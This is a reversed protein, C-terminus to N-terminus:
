SGLTHWPVFNFFPHCKIDSVGGGGSGLRYGADYQLLETLLSSAAASLHDPILLQTHPQVGTPHCQWLPMGTLLEFLLAGLSWWDCAETIKSVGGIEPACYMQELAKRSIESQVETWQGFYTLCVKGNSSLLINRPNLDQCVIGQEHLSELALLIQAGWIRVEGEPLGWRAQHVTGSFSRTGLQPRHFCNDADRLQELSQREERFHGHFSGGTNAAPPDSLLGRSPERCLLSLFERSEEGGEVLERQVEKVDKGTSNLQPAMNVFDLPLSLPSLCKPELPSVLAPQSNGSSLSVVFQSSESDVVTQSNCITHVCTIDAQSQSQLPLHLTNPVIRVKQTLVNVTSCLIPQTAEGFLSRLTIQPVGNIGLIDSNSETATLSKQDQTPKAANWARDIDLNSDVREIRVDNGLLDTTVNLPDRTDVIVCPHVPLPSNDQSALCNHQGNTPARSFTNMKVACSNSSKEQQLEVQELRSNHLCGTEECYSHTGCSELQHQIENWFAPSDPDLSESHDRGLLTDMGCEDEGNLHSLQSLMPSTYTTKLQYRHQKPSFCEPHEKAVKSRVRYLKSFLRCGQVHELHLFVSDESIYYRLLKVMFPVGQPIITPRERSEWSSKPLSKIVFTEKSILNQVTLVKDIVGVVKCMELDEVPSSLHRISRFRLSSYGGLQTSGKSLNSQLHSNFIEEARKLYQATKRKVAERREKNPDVQVGNLLLDVGNKYYSFAAEYDENVERDLAMRIQKPLAVHRLRSREELLRRVAWLEVPM